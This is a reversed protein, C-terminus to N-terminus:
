ELETASILMAEIISNEDKIMTLTWSVRDKISLNSADFIFVM